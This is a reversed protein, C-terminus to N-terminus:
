LPNKGADLAYCLGALKGPECGYAGALAGGALELIDAGFRFFLNFTLKKKFIDGLFDFKLPFTSGRLCAFKGKISDDLQPPQM